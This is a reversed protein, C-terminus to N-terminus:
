TRPLAPRRGHHARVASYTSQTGPSTERPYASTLTCGALRGNFPRSGSCLAGAMQCRESGGSPAIHAVSPLDTDALPRHQM